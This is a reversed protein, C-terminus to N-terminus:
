TVNMHNTNENYERDQTASITYDLMRAAICIFANNNDNNFSVYHEFVDCTIPSASIHQLIDQLDPGAVCTTIIVSSYSLLRLLASTVFHFRTWGMELSVSVIRASTCLWREVYPVSVFAQCLVFM